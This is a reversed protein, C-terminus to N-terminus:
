DGTTEVRIAGEPCSSEGIRAQALREDPLEASPIVCRGMEDAEFVESALAYCRGHGTCLADDVKVRIM